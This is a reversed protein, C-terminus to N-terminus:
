EEIFQNIYHAWSPEITDGCLLRAMNYLVKMLIGEKIFRRGPTIIGPRGHHLSTQLQLMKQM